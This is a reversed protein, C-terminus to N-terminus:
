FSFDEFGLISGLRMKSKQLIDDKQLFPVDWSHPYHIQGLFVTQGFHGGDEPGIHDQITSM